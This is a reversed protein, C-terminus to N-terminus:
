SHLKGIFQWFISEISDSYLYNELDLLEFEAPKKPALKRLFPRINTKLQQLCSIPPHCLGVPMQDNDLTSIRGMFTLIYM